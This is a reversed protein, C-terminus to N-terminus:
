DTRKELMALVLWKKKQLQPSQHNTGVDDWRLIIFPGPSRNPQQAASVAAEETPWALRINRKNQLMCGDMVGQKIGPWTWM